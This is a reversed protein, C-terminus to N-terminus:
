GLARIMVARAKKGYRLCYQLSKNIRLMNLIQLKCTKNLFPPLPCFLPSLKPNKKKNGNGPSSDGEGAGKQSEWISSRPQLVPARRSQKQSFRHNATHWHETPHM